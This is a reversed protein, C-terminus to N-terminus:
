IGLIYLQRQTERNAVELFPCESGTASWLVLKQHELLRLTFDDETIAKSYTLNLSYIMKICVTRCHVPTLGSKLQTSDYELLSLM